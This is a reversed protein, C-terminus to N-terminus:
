FRSERHEPLKEFEARVPNANPRGGEMRVPRPVRANAKRIMTAAVGGSVGARSAIGENATGENATGENAVAALAADAEVKGVDPQVKGAGTVATRASPNGKAAVGAAPKKLVIRALDVVVIETTAMRGVGGRRVKGRRVKGRRVKGRRVKGRRVKGRRVRNIKKEVIRVAPNVRAAAGSFIAGDPDNPL